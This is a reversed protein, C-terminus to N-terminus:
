RNAELWLKFAERLREPIRVQIMPELWKRKRGSGKRKGGSAM